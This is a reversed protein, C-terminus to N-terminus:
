CSLLPPRDTPPNTALVYRLHAKPSAPHARRGQPREEGRKLHRSDADPAYQPVIHVVETDPAISLFKM